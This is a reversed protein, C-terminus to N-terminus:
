EELGEVNIGMKGGYPDKPGGKEWVLTTVERSSSHRDNQSGSPISRGNGGRDHRVTSGGSGEQLDAAADSPANSSSADDARAEKEGVRTM